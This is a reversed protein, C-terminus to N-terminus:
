GAAKADGQSVGIVPVLALLGAAAALVLFSMRRYFQMPFLSLAYMAGVGALAFGLQRM